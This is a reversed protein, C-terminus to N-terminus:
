KYLKTVVRIQEGMSKGSNLISKSWTLEELIYILIYKDPTKWRADTRM